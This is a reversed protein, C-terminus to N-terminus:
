TAWFHRQSIFIMTMHEGGLKVCYQYRLPFLCGVLVVLVHM